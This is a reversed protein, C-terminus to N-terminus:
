CFLFNTFTAVSYHYLQTNNGSATVGAIISQIAIDQSTIASLMMNVEFSGIAEKVLLEPQRINM